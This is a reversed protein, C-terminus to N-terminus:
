LSEQQGNKSFERLKSFLSRRNSIETLSDIHSLQDLEHLLQQREQMYRYLYRVAILLFIIGIICGATISRTINIEIDDLREVSYDVGLAGVLKEGDRIGVMCGITKGYDDVYVDKDIHFKGQRIEDMDDLFGIPYDYKERFNSINDRTYHSKLKDFVAPNQLTDLIFYWENEIKKVTYIYRIKPNSLHILSLSSLLELQLKKDLVPSSALLEHKAPDINENIVNCLQYLEAQIDSKNEKYLLLGSILPMVTFAIVMLFGEPRFFVERFAYKNSIGSM